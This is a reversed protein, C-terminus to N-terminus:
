GIAKLFGKNSDLYCRTTTTAKHKTVNRWGQYPAATLLTIHGLPRHVRYDPSLSESHPNIINSNGPGQRNHHARDESKREAETDRERGRERKCGGPGSPTCQLRCPLQMISQERRSENRM